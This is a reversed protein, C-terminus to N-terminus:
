WVLRAARKQRTLSSHGAGPAIAVAALTNPSSKPDCGSISGESAEGGDAAWFQFSNEYNSRLDSKHPLHGDQGVQPATLLVKAFTTRLSFIEVAINDLIIVHILSLDDIVREIDLIRTHETM